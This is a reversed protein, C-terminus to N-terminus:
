KWCHLVDGTGSVSRRGTSDVSFALCEFDAAQGGAPTPIATAVYTQGDTAVAVSLLYRNSSSHPSLGLGGPKAADVDATYKGHQLYFAEEASQLALLAAMAETRHTRLLQRQFSPLALATVIGVITLVLLLELLTIGRSMAAVDVHIGARLRHV